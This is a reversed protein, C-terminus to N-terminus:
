SLHIGHLTCEGVRRTLSVPYLRPAPPVTEVNSKRRQAAGHHHNRGEDIGSRPRPLGRHAASVDAPAKKKKAVSLRRRGETKETEPCGTLRNTLKQRGQVGIRTAPIRCADGCRSTFPTSTSHGSSIESVTRHTVGANVGASLM